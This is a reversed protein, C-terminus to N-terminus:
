MDDQLEFTVDWLHWDRGTKKDKATKYRTFLVEVLVLDGRGLQNKRVLDM